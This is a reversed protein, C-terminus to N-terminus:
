SKKSMGMFRKKTFILVTVICVILIVIILVGRMSSMGLLDNDVDTVTINISLESTGGDEDSAIFTFSNRGVDKNGPTWTFLGTEPDITGRSGEQSFTVTDNDVDFAYVKLTFEKDETAQPEAIRIEIIPDRNDVVLPGPWDVRLVSGENDKITVHGQYSGQDPYIHEVEVGVKETGDGMFWSVEFVLTGPDYLDTIAFSAPVGELVSTPIDLEFTPPLDHVQVEFTIEDSSGDIDEVVLRVQHVGSTGWIWEVESEIGEIEFSGDSNFDWRFASFDSGPETSGAASITIAEGENVEYPGGADAVPPVNTVILGAKVRGVSGDIDEVELTIQYTGPTTWVPDLIFVPEFSDWTGDGDIDWRFHALDDGPETSSRADLLATSGETTSNFEAVAVPGVDTVRINIHVRTLSGDDDLVSLIVDSMFPSTFIHDCKADQTIEDDNGDGDWDWRYEIIDDPYSTTGSADFTLVKGEPVVNNEVSIAAKPSEDAVTITQTILDMSGDSDVVKLAITYTGDELYMHTVVEGELDITFTGEEYDVDWLFSTIEDPYSISNEAGLQLISGETLIGGIEFVGTPALDAVDIDCICLNMSGDEDTVRLAVNYPGNDMYIHNVVIGTADTTFSAGQFDLDWEFLIIDDPFSTSSVADFKVVTGEDTSTPADIVASPTLDSVLINMSKIAFSGDDDTVRLAVMVPGNNMFTRIVQAGSAGPNFSGDYAFDWEYLELNDPYSSSGTGNFIVPSGEVTPSDVTFTAIPSLDLVIIRGIFESYSGDSDYARLCFRYRGDDMFTHDVVVGTDDVEFSGSYDIDWELRDLTDPWSTTDTANFSVQTGEDTTSPFEVVITPSLDHVNITLTAIDVSGDDDVVRLGIIYTRDEKFTYQVKSGTADSTFPENYDFDWEYTVIKDPFSTTHSGDLTVTDFENVTGPDLIIAVPGDDLVTIPFKHLTTIDNNDTLRLVVTYDGHDLYMHRVSKGIEDVNFTGDYDFDWEWAKYGAPCDLQSADFIKDVGEQFPSMETTSNYLVTTNWNGAKDWFKLYFSVNMPIRTPPIGGKAELHTGNYYWMSLELEHFTGGYSYFVSARDMAWEDIFKASVYVNTAADQLKEYLLSGLFPPIDDVYYSTETVAINGMDDIAWVRYYVWVGFGTSPIIASYIDDGEYTVGLNIFPGVDGVRYTIQVLTVATESDKVTADVAVPVSANVYEPDWLSLEIVPPTTDVLYSRTTSNSYLGVTDHFHIYFFVMSTFGPSTITGSWEDDITRVMSVTTWDSSDVQYNLEVIAIGDLDTINATVTTITTTNAIPPTYSVDSIAPIDSAYYRHVTTGTPYRLMNNARDFVVYHFDVWANVGPAPVYGSWTANTENGNLQKLSQDSWTAKNDYSYRVFAGGIYEDDTINIWVPFDVTLELLPPIPGEGAATVIPYGSDTTYQFITSSSSLDSLDTANIHYLVTISAGTNPIQGQFIDGTLTMAVSSWTGGDDFSYTLTANRAGVTDTVQVDVLVPVFATPYEPSIRPEKIEPHTEDIQYSGSISNLGEETDNTWIQYYVYPIATMNPITVSWDSTVETGNVTTWHVEDTSYKLWMLYVGDDDTITATIKVSTQNNPHLPSLDVNIIQPPPNWDFHAVYSSVNLNHGVDFAEIKYYFTTNLLPILVPSKFEIAEGSGSSVEMKVDVWTLNDTSLKLFAELVSKNDTINTYIWFTTTQRYTTNFKTFDIIEPKEFDISYNLVLSNASNNSPDTANFYFYVKPNTGASPITATYSHSGEPSGKPADSMITSLDSWTLNDYSYRAIVNLPSCDDSIVATVDVISTPGPYTLHREISEVIPTQGDIYYEFSSSYNLGMWSESDEAWFAFHVHTSGNIPGIDASWNSGSNTANVRFGGIEDEYCQVYVYGIGNDDYISANVTVITSNNPNSPTYSINEIRPPPNFAFSAIESEKQNGGADFAEILYYYTTNIQPLPLTAMFEINKGSGIHVSMEDSRFTLNDTSWNLNANSVQTDDSINAYIEFDERVRWTFKPNVIKTFDKIVPKEFDINYSMVKSITYNNVYPNALDTVICYYYVIPNTGPLPLDASYSYTGEGYGAPPDSRITTLNTWIKNDYGYRMIVELTTTDDWIVATATVTTKPGPYDPTYFIDKIEPLTKYSQPGTEQQNLGGMDTPTPQFWENNVNGLPYLLASAIIIIAPILKEWRIPMNDKKKRM